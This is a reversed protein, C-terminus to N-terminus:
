KKLGRLGFIGLCFFLIALGLPYFFLQENDSYIEQENQEKDFQANIASLFPKLDTPDSSYELYAGDTQLALKAISSNLSTIVINENKDKQLEGDFSQIHTGKKTGITYVFIKINNKQAFEIEKSFDKEETGDTFVILAKQKENELLKYSSKLMNYINSGSSITEEPKIKDLLFSVSLFDNTIASALYTKDSFVVIGAKQNELLGLFQQAKYKAFEFRNPAVDKALMSKSIDLALLCSINKQDKKQIVNQKIPRALSFILFICSLILLILKLNEQNSGIFIKQRMHPTFDFVERTKSKKILLIPILLLLYFIDFNEFSM